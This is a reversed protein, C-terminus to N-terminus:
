VIVQLMASSPASYQATTQASNPAFLSITSTDWFKDDWVELAFFLIQSLIEDPLDDQVRNHCPRLDIRVFYLSLPATQLGHGLNDARAVLADNNAESAEAKSVRMGLNASARLAM